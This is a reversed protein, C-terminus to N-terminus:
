TGPFYTRPSLFVSTRQGNENLARTMEDDYIMKLNSTLQQNVKMSLYYALGSVMCPIFTYYVDATNTYAGADQIKKIYYYQLQYNSGSHLSDPTQYLYVVPNNQRDVYYQSPVGQSLKNPIAAYTSRDIKSLTQDVPAAPTSNNRYYAELVDSCDSPTTYNAQGQVLTDTQLAVKWLHVGRNGWESFLINLSRRASKIDYGSRSSRIACREYAEEIIDDIELDFSTTGSTAM